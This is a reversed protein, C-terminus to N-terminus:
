SAATTSSTLPLESVVEFFRGDVVGASFQGGYMLARERMGVLGHGETSPELSPQTITNRVRIRILDRGVDVHVDVEAGPAYKVVNTVSEQVIRYTALGIGAPVPPAPEPLDATVQCGAARAREVLTALDGLVLVEPEVDQRSMADAQLLGLMRRMDGLAERATEEVATLRGVVQEEDPGQDEVASRAAQTQVVVVSLGHSVVDHLERAIRAREETVARRTRERHAAEVADATDRAEVLLRGRRSVQWGAGLFGMAILTSLAFDSVGGSTPLGFTAYALFAVGVVSVVVLDRDRNVAGALAFTFLSAVFQLLGSSPVLALSVAQLGFSAITVALPQRGRACFVLVSLGSCVAVTVRPGQGGWLVSASVGATLAVLGADLARRRGLM